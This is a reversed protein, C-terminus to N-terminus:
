ARAGGLAPTRRRRPRDLAADLARLEHHAIGVEGLAEGDVRTRALRDEVALVAAIARLKIAGCAGANADLDLSEIGRLGLAISFGDDAAKSRAPMACVRLLIRQM